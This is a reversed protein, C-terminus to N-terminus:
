QEHEVASEFIKFKQMLTRIEDAQGSLYSDRFSGFGNQMEELHLQGIADYKVNLNHTLFGYSLVQKRPSGLKRSNIYLNHYASSFEFGILATSFAPIPTEEDYYEKNFAAIEAVIDEIGNITLDLKADNVYKLSIYGKPKQGM